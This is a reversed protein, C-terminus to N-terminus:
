ERCGGDAEARLKGALERGADTLYLHTTRQAMFRLRHREILGSAELRKYDRSVLTYDSATLTKRLWGAPNTKVYGRKADAILEREVVLDWRGYACQPTRAAYDELDRLAGVLILKQRASLRM